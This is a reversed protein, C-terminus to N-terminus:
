QKGLLRRTAIRVSEDSSHRAEWGLEAMKSLDLSVQPV